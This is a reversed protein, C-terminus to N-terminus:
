TNAGEGPLPECAAEGDMFAAFVDAALDQAEILRGEAALYKRLNNRMPVAVDYCASAISLWVYCEVAADLGQEVEGRNFHNTMRFVMLMGYAAAGRMSGGYAAREAWQTATKLNEPVGIGGLHRLSLEYMADTDGADALPKLEAISYDSLHPLGPEAFAAFLSLFSIAVVAGGIRKSIM